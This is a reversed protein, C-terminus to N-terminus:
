KLLELYGESVLKNLASEVRTEIVKNVKAFEYVNVEGDHELVWNQLRAMIAEDSLGEFENVVLSLEDNKSKLEFNRNNLAQIEDKMRENKKRLTDAEAKLSDYSTYLKSYDLTVSEAISTLSEEILQYVVKNDVSYYEGVLSLINLFYRIVDMKRKAPSIEPTISYIVEVENKSIQIISFLYPNNNIDKSEVYAANVKDTGLAVELFSVTRLIEAVNSLSKKLVVGKIKFGGVSPEGMRKQDVM